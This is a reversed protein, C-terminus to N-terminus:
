ITTIIYLIGEVCINCDECHAVDNREHVIINCIRCIKYGSEKSRKISLSTEKVYKTIYHERSPIGPNICATLTHSITQTLYITLGLYYLFDSLDNYVFQFLLYNVINICAFLGVTM